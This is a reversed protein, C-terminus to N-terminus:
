SGGKPGGRWATSCQFLAVPDLWCVGEWNDRRQEASVNVYFTNELNCLSM